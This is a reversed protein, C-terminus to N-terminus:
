QLSECDAPGGTGRGLPVLGRVMPETSAAVRPRENPMLVRNQAKSPATGGRQKRDEYDYKVRNLITLTSLSMRNRCATRQASCKKFLREVSATQPKCSLLTMALRALETCRGSKRVLRWFKPWTWGVERYTKSGSVVPFHSPQVEGETLFDFLQQVVRSAGIEEGPFWKRFYGGAANAMNSSTFHSMPTGRWDLDLLSRAATM